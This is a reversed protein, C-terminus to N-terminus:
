DGIIPNDKAFNMKSLVPASGLQMCWIRDSELIQNTRIGNQIQKMTFPGFEKTERYVYWVKYSLMIRLNNENKNNKEYTDIKMELYDLKNKIEKLIELTPDKQTTLEIKAPEVKPKAPEVKPPEINVVSEEDGLFIDPSQTPTPLMAEQGLFNDLDTNIRM